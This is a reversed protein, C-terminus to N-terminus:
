ASTKQLGAAQCDGLEPCSGRLAGNQRQKMNKKGTGQWSFSSLPFRRWGFAAKGERQVGEHEGAIGTALVLLETWTGM